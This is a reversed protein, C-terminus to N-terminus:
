SLSRRIRWLSLLTYFLVAGAYATMGLGVAFPVLLWQSFYILGAGVSAILGTQLLLCTLYLSVRTERVHAVIWDRYGIEGMTRMIWANQLNRAAVLISTTVIILAPLPWAAFLACVVLNLVLGGKWGLWRAVPNAELILNPTAIWTSLFDMGRGFILLGLLVFYGASGPQLQEDM